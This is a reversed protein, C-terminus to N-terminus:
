INETYLVSENEIILEQNKIEEKLSTIKDNLEQILKENNFSLINLNYEKEILSLNYRNFLLQWKSIKNFLSEKSIRDVFSSNKGCLIIYEKELNNKGLLIEINSLTIEDESKIEAIFELLIERIKYFFDIKFNIKSFSSKIDSTLLLKPEAILEALLIYQYRTVIDLDLINIFLNIDNNSINKKNNKYNKVRGLEWIKNRFFNQYNKRVLPNAISLSLDSLKKELGSIQEPTKNTIKNIENQWIMESLPIKNSLLDEFSNRGRDKIFDDPDKDGPISVFNLSKGEILLPIALEAARKMAKMGAADGDFCIIPEDALKWLKHLHIQTIATGMTAVTEYFRHQHMSVVDMYGEVVIVRNEKYCNLKAVNEAYLVENKKFLLTEPSNLYKPIADGFARGGFAIVQNKNNFIPFIIRNKFKDSIGNKNISLGAQELIKESINKGLLFKVLANQTIPAYGINFREISEKTVQRNTLYNLANKNVPLKLQEEFWSKALNLVNYLVDREDYKFNDGEKIPLPIGAFNALYEIAEQFGLHDLDMIFKFIDGGVGCGFCYYLNNEDSLTFSPTKEGHFPCLGTYKNGRKELRIKQGVLSSIPVRDRIQEIFNSPFIM